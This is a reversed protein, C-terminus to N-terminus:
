WNGCSGINARLDNSFLHAYKELPQIDSTRFWAARIKHCNKVEVLFENSDELVIRYDPPRTASDEVFLDGSDERKVAISKGLSAALYGFMSEVRRGHLIISNNKSANLSNSIQKVFQDGSPEDNLSFGLERAMADFLDVVEFREPNRPIRKIPNM